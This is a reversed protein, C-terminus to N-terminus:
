TTAKLFAYSADSIEVSYSLPSLRSVTVAVIVDSTGLQSALATQLATKFSALTKGGTNPYSKEALGRITGLPDSSLELWIGREGTKPHVGYSARIAPM